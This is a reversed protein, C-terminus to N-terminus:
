AQGFESIDDDDPEPRTILRQLRRMWWPRRGDLPGVIPHDRLHAAAARPGVGGLLVDGLLREIRRDFWARNAWYHDFWPAAEALTGYAPFVISYTLQEVAFHRSRRRMEDFVVLCRDYLGQYRRSSAIIGGNWMGATRDPTIGDWAHDLIEHTLSRDGKRPPAALSYERRHLM